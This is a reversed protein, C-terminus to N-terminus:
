RHAESTQAHRQARPAGSAGGGALRVGHCSPRRSAVTSSAVSARAILASGHGAHYLYSAVARAGALLRTPIAQGPAHCHNSLMPMTSRV